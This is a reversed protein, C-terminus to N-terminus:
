QWSRQGMAGMIHNAVQLCVVVGDEHIETGEVHARPKICNIKVGWLSLLGRINGIPCTQTVNEQSTFTASITRDKSFTYTVVVAGNYPASVTFPFNSGGPRDAPPREFVHALNSTVVQSDL